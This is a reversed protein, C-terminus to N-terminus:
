QSTLKSQGETMREVKQRLSDIEGQMRRFMLGEHAIFAMLGLWLVTISPYDMAVVCLGFTLGPIIMAQLAATIGKM